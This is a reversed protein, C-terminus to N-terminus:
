GNVGRMRYPESPTDGFRDVAMLVKDQYKKNLLGIKSQIAPTIEGYGLLLGAAYAAIGQAFQQMLASNNFPSSADSSMASPIAYYSMELNAGADGDQPIPYLRLKKSGEEPEIVYNTPTGADDRWDDGGADKFLTDRSIPSLVLGKHHIIKEMWFDSPLDYTATGAVVTFTSADKYLCM